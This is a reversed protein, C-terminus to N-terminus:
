PNYKRIRGVMIGNRAESEKLYMGLPEESIVVKGLKKSAHLLHVKGGEYVALGAHMVDLGKTASTIGIIDGERIKQEQDDFTSIPTYYLTRRKLKKEAEAMQRATEPDALPSYLEPHATMYNIDKALPIGGLNKTVDNLVGKRVNDQLWDSFYHLRSAYGTLIGGRYRIKTLLATFESWAGKRSTILLALSLCSEVFTFCDFTRLNVVLTEPGAKELTRDAYSAELFNRGVATLAQSPTGPVDKEDLFTEMLQQHILMDELQPHM